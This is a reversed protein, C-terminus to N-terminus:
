MYGFEIRLSTDGSDLQYETVQGVDPTFFEKESGHRTIIGRCHLLGVGWVFYKKISSGCASCKLHSIERNYHCVSPEFGHDNVFDEDRQVVVFGHKERVSTCTPNTCYCHFNFGDGHKTYFNKIYCIAPYEIIRYDRHTVKFIIPSTDKPIIFESHKKDTPNFKETKGHITIEGSCRLLLVGSVQNPQISAECSPCVLWKMSPRLDCDILHGSPIISLCGRRVTDCASNPCCAVFNLGHCVSNQSYGGGKSSFGERKNDPYINACNLEEEMLYITVDSASSNPKYDIAEESGAEIIFLERDIVLEARCQIFSLCLLIMDSLSTHCFPCNVTNLLGQYSYGKMEPFSIIVMGDEAEKSACVLKPCIAKVNMGKKMRRYASSYPETSVQRAQVPLIDVVPDTKLDIHTPKTSEGQIYSTTREANKVRATCETFLTGIYNDSPITHDCHPCPTDQIISQLNCDAVVGISITVVGKLLEISRSPCSSNPCNFLLNLGREPKILKGMARNSNVKYVIQATADLEDSEYRRLNNGAAVFPECKGNSEITGKCRVLSVGDINNRDLPNGCSPCLLCQIEANYDCCDASCGNREIFQEDRKVIVQGNSERNAQCSTDKCYCMFNVGNCVTTYAEGSTGLAAGASVATHAVSLKHSSSIERKLIRIHVEPGEQDVKFDATENGEATLIHMKDGVRVEAKCRIFSLGIFNAGPICSRCGPCILGKILSSYDAETTEPCPFVIFNANCAPNACLAELNLGICACTFSKETSAVQSISAKSTQSLLGTPIGFDRNLLVTIEVDPGDLGLCHGIPFQDSVLIEEKGCKVLQAICGLM